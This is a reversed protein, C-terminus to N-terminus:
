TALLLAASGAAIAFGHRKAQGILIRGNSPIGGQDGIAPQSVSLAAQQQHGSSDIERNLRKLDVAMDSVTQYRLQRDKELAKNTIRELEVPAEPNLRLLSVPARRLIADFVVATSGGTFPPRGTAMEYLVAGFSFIDTRTDLEQGRAQEPSMYAVTGLAQGPSTLHDESLSATAQASLSSGVSLKRAHTKRALGFDLIKIAGRRTLSRRRNVPSSCM